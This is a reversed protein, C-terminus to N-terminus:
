LQKMKFNRINYTFVLKEEGTLLERYLNAVTLWKATFGVAKYQGTKRFYSM